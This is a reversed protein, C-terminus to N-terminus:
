SAESTLADLEQLGFLGRFMHSQERQGQRVEHMCEHERVFGQRKGFGDEVATKHSLTVSDTGSWPGFLPGPALSLERIALIRM